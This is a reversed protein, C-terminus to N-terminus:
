KEVFKYAIDHHWDVIKEYGFSLILSHIKENPWGYHNGNGNMEVVILPKSRHITEAAGLLEEGEFGEIDLHILDPNLNLSDIKIQNITGEGLHVRRAGLNTTSRAIDPNNEMSVLDNSNGLAANIKKVNKKTINHDLCFFWREDPEFTIVEKFREAYLYPFIGGNGGAQIVLNRKEEPILDSIINPFNYVLYPIDHFYGSKAFQKWTVTDEKPWLFQQGPFNKSSRYDLSLKELKNM